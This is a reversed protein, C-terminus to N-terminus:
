CLSRLMLPTRYGEFEYEYGDPVTKLDLLFWVPDRQVGQPHGLTTRCDEIFELNSTASDIDHASDNTWTYVLVGATREDYLPRLQPREWPKYKKDYGLQMWRECVFPGQLFGPIKGLTERAADTLQRYPVIWGYVYFPTRLGRADRHGAPAPPEIATRIPPFQNRSASQM